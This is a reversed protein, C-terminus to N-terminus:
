CRARSHAAQQVCKAPGGAGGGGNSSIVYSFLSAFSLPVLRTPCLIISLPHATRNKLHFVLRQSYGPEEGNHCKTPARVALFTHYGRPM